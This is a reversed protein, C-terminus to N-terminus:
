WPRVSLPMWSATLMCCRPNGVRGLGPTLQIFIRSGRAHVGQALDRWGMFNTRTGDIRPFYSYNGKETVSNRFLPDGSQCGLNAAFTGDGINCYTLSTPTGDIDDVHGRVITNVMSGSVRAGFKRTASYVNDLITSHEIKSLAAAGQPNHGKDMYVGNALDHSQLQNGVVLSNRLLGGCTAYFCVGGGRAGWASTVIKNSVVVCAVVDLTGGYAGIGGGYVNRGSKVTNDTIWCREVLASSRDFGVGGGYSSTNVDFTNDAFRCDRFVMGGSRVVAVAGGQKADAGASVANAGTFTLGSVQVDAVTIFSLLGQNAGVFLTGLIGIGPATEAANPILLALAVGIVMGIVIRLVLSVSNYAKVIKM